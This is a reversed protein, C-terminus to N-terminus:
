PKELSGPPATPDSDLTRLFAVISDRQRETLRLPHLETRGVAGPPARDYHEVVDGLRKFSGAHM